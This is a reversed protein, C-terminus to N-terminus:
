RKSPTSGSPNEPWFWTHFEDKPGDLFFGKEGSTCL